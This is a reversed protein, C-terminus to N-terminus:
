IMNFNHKKHTHTHPKLKLYSGLGPVSSYYWIQIQSKYMIIIIINYIIYHKM